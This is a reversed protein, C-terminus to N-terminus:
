RKFHPYAEVLGAITPARIPGCEWSHVRATYGDQYKGITIQATGVVKYPEGFSARIEEREKETADFSTAWRPFEPGMFALAVCMFSM